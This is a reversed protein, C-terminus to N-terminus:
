EDFCTDFHNEDTTLIPGPGTLSWELSKEWTLETRGGTISTLVLENSNLKSDFNKISRLKKM